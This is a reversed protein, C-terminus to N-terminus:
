DKYEEFLIEKGCVKDYANTYVSTFPCMGEGTNFDDEDPLSGTYHQCMYCYKTEM